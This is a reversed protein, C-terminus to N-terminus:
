LEPVLDLIVQKALHKKKPGPQLLCLEVLASLLVENEALPRKNYDNEMLLLVVDLAKNRAEELEPASTTLVSSLSNVVAPQALWSPRNGPSGSKTASDLRAMELLLEAIVIHSESCTAATSELRKWFMESFCSSGRRWPSKMVCAKLCEYLAISLKADTNNEVRELLATELSPWATAVFGTETLIHVAQCAQLLMDRDNDDDQLGDLSISDILFSVLEEKSVYEGIGEGYAAVLCRVTRMTRRRVISDSEQEVLKMLIPFIKLSSDTREPRLLLNQFPNDSLMNGLASIANRKIKTSLASPAKDDNRTELIKVLARPFILQSDNNDGRFLYSCSKKDLALNWIVATFWEVFKGDEDQSTKAGILLVHYFIGDGIQLLAEKQGAGARFTLDKILGLCDFLIVQRDTEPKQLNAFLFQFIRELWHGHGYNIMRSKASDLKAYVRLVNTSSELMRQHDLSEMNSLSLISLHVLIPFM